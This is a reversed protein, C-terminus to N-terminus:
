AALLLPPTSSLNSYLPNYRSRLTFPTTPDIRYTAIVEGLNDLGVHGTGSRRAVTADPLGRWDEDSTGAYRFARLLM